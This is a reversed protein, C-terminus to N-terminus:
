QDDAALLGLPVNGGARGILAALEPDMLPMLGRNAAGSAASIANISPQSTYAKSALNLPISAAMEFTNLPMRTATGSNGVLPQFAQAFRAASYLDSQNKGLTYGKRDATQLAQALAGGRVDGKGPNVANGKLMVMLARYNARAQKFAEKTKGQLGAELLEDVQEKVDFLAAGLERNGMPSRMQQNANKGLKSSLEQLQRGTAGGREAYLWLNKVVPHDIISGGIMGQYEDDLAGLRKLFEDPQIERKVDDKVLKYVDDIKDIAKSMVEDGLNDANVGIAKAAIENLKKQNNAKIDFFPGSTMPQSEAKAELQQLAKSGTAQGPTTKFGLKQGVELAKKEASNLGASVDDGVSGYSYGGRGTVTAATEAGERAAAEAGEQAISEVGERAAVQRPMFRARAGGILKGLRDGLYKGGAGLAGGYVINAIRSDGEAEVTPQLAGLAAGTGVAAGYGTLPAVPLTMAVNGLVNGAVGGGTGMLPADLRRREAIQEEPVLGLIDKAGEYVDYFAKGTGQLLNEGFSQGAVPSYLERDAQQQKALREQRAAQQQGFQQQAYAMVQAETADDPASIEFRQGDPSTIEYTAM